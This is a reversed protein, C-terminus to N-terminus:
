REGGSRSEVREKRGNLSSPELGEVPLTPNSKTGKRGGYYANTLLVVKVFCLPWVSFNTDKAVLGLLGFNETSPFSALAIYAECMVAIWSDTM